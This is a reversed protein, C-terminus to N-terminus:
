IFAVCATYVIAVLNAVSHALVPVPWKHYRTYLTAIVLGMLFAYLGQVINLHYIGFVLSSVICSLIANSQQRKKDMGGFLGFRLANYLCLRFIFEEILPALLCYKVLRIFLPISSDFQNDFVKVYSENGVLGTLNFLLTLVFSALVAVLVVVAYQKIGIKKHRDDILYYFSDWNGNM